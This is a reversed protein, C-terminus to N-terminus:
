SADSMVEPRQLLRVMTPNFCFGSCTAGKRRFSCCDCWQPISVATMKAFVKSPPSAAIAGNHSQFMRGEDTKQQSQSAAIAGNHSQFMLLITIGTFDHLAAIAGNHSQFQVRRLAQLNIHEQLLRVM